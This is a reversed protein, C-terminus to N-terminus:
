DLSSFHRFPDTISKPLATPAHIRPHDIGHGYCACYFHLTGFHEPDILASEGRTQWSNVKLVDIDYRTLRQSTTQSGVIDTECQM